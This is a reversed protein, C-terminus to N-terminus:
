KEPQGLRYGILREVEALAKDTRALLEQNGLQAHQARMEKLMQWADASGVKSVADVLTAAITPDTEGIFGRYFALRQTGVVESTKPSESPMVRAEAPFAYRAAELALLRYIPNKAEVLPRWNELASQDGTAERVAASVVAYVVLDGKTAPLVNARSWLMGPFDRGGAMGQGMGLGLMAGAAEIEVVSKAYPFNGTNIQDLALDRSAMVSALEPPLFAGSRVLADEAGGLSENFSGTWCGRWLTKMVSATTAGSAKANNLEKALRQVVADVAPHLARTSKPPSVREELPPRLKTDPGGESLVYGSPPPAPRTPPPSTTESGGQTTTVDGPKALSAQQVPKVEDDVTSAPPQKSCGVLLVAVCIASLLLSKIM